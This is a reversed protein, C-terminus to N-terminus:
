SREVVASSALKFGAQKILGGEDSVWAILGSIRPFSGSLNPIGFSPNFAWLYYFGPQGATWGLLPLGNAGPIKPV